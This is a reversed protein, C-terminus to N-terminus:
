FSRKTGPNKIKQFYFKGRRCCRYHYWASQGEYNQINSLTPSPVRHLQRTEVPKKWGRIAMFEGRRKSSQCQLTVSYEEYRINICANTKNKNVTGEHNITWRGSQFVVM